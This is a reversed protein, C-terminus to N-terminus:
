ETWNEVHLGKIRGFERTNNTVLTANAALAHAAILLDMAGVPQGCTDLASRIQGYHRPVDSEDAALVEFPALVKYLARRQSASDQAKAVGYELECVTIMSVCVQGGESIQCEIRNRIREARRRREDQPDAVKLGRLMFILIDTDLMFRRSSM